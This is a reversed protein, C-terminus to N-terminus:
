TVVHQNHYDIFQRAVSHGRRSRIKAPTLQMGGLDLMAHHNPCVILINQEIDPGNHPRGLPRVHHAEAYTSGSEMQVTQGCIQCQNRHQAKLSRALASDRVIRSVVTRKRVSEPPDSVDSAADIATLDESPRGEVLAYSYRYRSDVPNGDSLKRLRSLSFPRIAKCGAIAYLTGEGPTWVREQKTAKLSYALLQRTAERSEQPHLDLAKLTAAYRISHAEGIVAFYIPLAGYLGLLDSARRWIVESRFTILRAPTRTGIRAAEELYGRHNRTFVAPLTPRASKPM